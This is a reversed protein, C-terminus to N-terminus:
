REWAWRRWRCAVVVAALPLGRPVAWGFLVIGPVGPLGNAGGTLGPSNVALLHVVQAIGLTALAFYHSELRLVPLGVLLALLLPVLLSVPFTAAFGWGWQSGLIGTAYAGIGFFAGHALSLAGGLGFVIQFGIAALAYVGAVTLVRLGYPSAYLLAYAVLVALMMGEGAWRPLTLTPALARLTRVGKRM